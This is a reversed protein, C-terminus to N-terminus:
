WKNNHVIEQLPKRDTVPEKEEATYGIPTIAVVRVGKPINLAKLAPDEEFAAIWCTGLGLETSALVMNQMCIAADVKWYDAKNKGQWAAKSNACVVLIVPANVFWDQNYAARLSQRIKPDKVVIFSCPQLNAASPGLRGAELIINLKEDEVPKNLYKRISRRKQLVELVFL